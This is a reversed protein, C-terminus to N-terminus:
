DRRTGDGRDGKDGRPPRTLIKDLRDAYELREDSEMQALQAVLLRTGIRQGEALREQQSLLLAEVRAADFPEQRLAVMLEEFQGQARARAERAGGAERFFERGLARRDEGEMAGVYPGFGVDRVQLSRSRDVWSDARLAVGAVLGVVALNAALSVVLVVRAWHFRAKPKQGDSQSM